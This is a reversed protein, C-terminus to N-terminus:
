HVALALPVAMAPTVTVVALPVLKFPLMMIAKKCHDNLQAIASSIIDLAM